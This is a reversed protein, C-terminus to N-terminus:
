GVIVKGVPDRLKAENHTRTVALFVTLSGVRGAYMLVILVVRSLQPLTPTIGTSLGVTGLASMCEFTSDLASQGQACLVMIGAFAMAAYIAMGCFARQLLEPELRYRGTTTDERGRLSAIVAAMVVIFTTTKVGGGTGGPSAGVFMLFITLLKSDDSLSAMDVTAYGATRPTVSQFISALARESPNMGAMVGNWEFAAFLVAGGAILVGTAILVVRTHLRLKKYMFRCDVLDNWVVFGLGGLTILAAVTLSVIPDGVFATLSSNPKVIGMLDFGANCFSSISHFVSYWIGRWLGFMPVFRIALLLAGASEIILTGILTRKVLRVVGGIQSSSVAEALLSRERLGIRRGLALSFTIAVTMFGLGGIQILLIIIVQGFGSFRTWTDFLALGTVCTASTATFLADMFPIWRGDRASIPLCLLLAGILIMAAFGVSLIRTASWHGSKRAPRSLIEMAPEHEPRSPRLSEKEPPPLFEPREWEPRFGGRADFADIRKMIFYGLLVIGVMVVIM